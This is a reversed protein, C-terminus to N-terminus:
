RRSRRLWAEEEDAKKENGVEDLMRSALKAVAVQLAARRGVTTAAKLTIWGSKTTV